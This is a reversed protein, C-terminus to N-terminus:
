GAPDTPRPPQRAPLALSSRPWSRRPIAETMTEPSQPLHDLAALAQEFCTVAQRYASQAAAHAGTRRLYAPAKSWLSSTLGMPSCPDVRIQVYYSKSGWGHHYEPRYNVLLLIRASPLSDVLSDLLAQTESDIWHLDEVIILLAQLQSERILLAKVAELTRQRRDRPDLTSFSSDPPLADLLTLIAPVTDELLGGQTLVKTTVKQRTTERDDSDGIQFLSRILDRVPGYAAARGYSVSRSELIRWSRTPVSQSFERVLRSKGVGAEGVMAALQGRGRSAVDLAHSLADMERQRGVFRTLGRTAVAQLRTRAPGPGLLQYVHM